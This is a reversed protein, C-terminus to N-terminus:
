KSFDNYLIFCFRVTEFMNMLVYVVSKLPKFEFQTKELEIHYSAAYRIINLM